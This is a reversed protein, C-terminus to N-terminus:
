FLKFNLRLAGRDLLVNRKSPPGTHIEVPLTIVFESRAMNIVVDVLFIKWTGPLGRTGFDGFLHVYLHDDISGDGEVSGVPFWRFLMFFWVWPALPINVFADAVDSVYMFYDKKLLWSVREFTDLSHGLIGLVTHANFGTKTHDSVPRLVEPEHPKPVASIPFVFYDSALANLDALVDHWRGLCLSKSAELRGLIATSVSQRGAYAPPYNKFVRRGKLQDRQAGIDFGYRLGHLVFNGYSDYVYGRSMARQLISVFRDYKINCGPLACANEEHVLNRLRTLEDLGGGGRLRLPSSGWFDTGSALCLPLMMTLNASAM